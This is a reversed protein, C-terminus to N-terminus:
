FEVAYVAGWRGHFAQEDGGGLAVAALAADREDRGDRVPYVGDAHVVPLVDRHDPGRAPRALVALLRRRHDHGLTRDLTTSARTVAGLSPPLLGYPLRLQPLIRTMNTLKGKREKKKQKLHISRHQYTGITHIVQHIMEDSFDFEEHEEEGMDQNIMAVGEGESMMSTRADASERGEGENDDDDLAASQAVEGLGRYGLARARNHEWKLYYPKFFLMIPVQIVALVLLIIQVVKQGSYLQEEITGPQLFM